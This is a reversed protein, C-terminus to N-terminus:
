NPRFALFLASAVIFLLTPLSQGAANPTTQNRCTQRVGIEPLGYNLLTQHVDLMEPVYTTNRVLVVSYHVLNNACFTLVMRTAQSELVQVTGAFQEYGAKTVMSGEQKRWVLWWGGNEPDATKFTYYIDGAKEHWNLKVISESESILNLKPCVDTIQLGRNRPDDKHQIIEIVYWIGLMNREVKPEIHNIQLCSYVTINNVNIISTSNLIGHVVQFASVVALVGLWVM